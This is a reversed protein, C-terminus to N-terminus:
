RGSARIGLRRATADLDALFASLYTDKGAQARQPAVLTLAERIAARASPKSVDAQFVLREAVALDAPASPAVKQVARALALSQEIARRAAGLDGAKEELEALHGLSVGLQEQLRVQSPALARAREFAQIGRQYAKRAAALDQTRLIDGLAVESIGLEEIMDVNSPTIAVIDASLDRSAQFQARAEAVDGGLLAVRALSEIEVGLARRHRLDRPERAVLSAAATYSARYAAKAGALDQEHERVRGVCNWAACLGSDAMVADPQLQALETAAALARQSAPKAAGFDRAALAWTALDISAKVMARNLFPKQKSPLALLPSSIAVIDEAYGRAAAFDARRGAEDSLRALVKIMCVHWMTADAAPTRPMLALRQRAQAEAQRYIQAAEDSRGIARQADGLVVRTNCIVAEREDGPALKQLIRLSEEYVSLAKPANGSAMLADGHATLAAAHHPLAVTSRGDVKHFYHIIQASTDALLDLHGLRDLRERLEDLVFRVLGQAADRQTEAHQQAAVASRRQADIRILSVVTLAVFLLAATAAVTVAARHRGIWRAIREPASYRHALVLSGSLFRRLDEAFERASSYRQEPARAMARAVIAFLAPAVGDVVQDLPVVQRAPPQGAIVHYLTAGLGVVDSRHDVPQGELQEQSMYGPTGVAEGEMTIGDGPVSPQVHIPRDIGAAKASMDVALGWDLLVTDGYEGVMINRPKLDRHIIGQSHAYAVADAIALVNPILKLRETLTASAEIKHELPVGAILRMAYFPTGDELVGADHVPVISPHELRSTIAIEREFRGSMADELTLKIAVPRNLRLDHAAFIRGMGGRAIEQGFQYRCGM